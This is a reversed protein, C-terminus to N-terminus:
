SYSAGRGTGPDLTGERNEGEWAIHLSTSSEHNSSGNQTQWGDQQQQRNKGADSHAVLRSHGLVPSGLQRPHEENQQTLKGEPEGVRTFTLEPRATPVDLSIRFSTLLVFWAVSM